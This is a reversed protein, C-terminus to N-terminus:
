EYKEYLNWSCEKQMNSIASRSFEMSVNAIDSNLRSKKRGPHFREPLARHKRLISSGAIRGKNCKFGHDIDITVTQNIPFSYAVRLQQGREKNREILDKDKYKRKQRHAWRFKELQWWKCCTQSATREIAKLKAKKKRKVKNKILRLFLGVFFSTLTLFSQPANPVSM